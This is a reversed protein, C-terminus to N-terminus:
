VWYDLMSPHDTEPTLVNVLVKGKKAKKGKKVKKAQFAVSVPVEEKVVSQACQGDVKKEANEKAERLERDRRWLMGKSVDPEDIGVKRIPSETLQPGPSLHQVLPSSSSATREIIPSCIAVTSPFTNCGADSQDVSSGSIKCAPSSDSGGSLGTIVGEHAPLSHDVNSGVTSAILEPQSKTRAPPIETALAPTIPGAILSDALLAAEAEAPPLDPELLGFRAQVEQMSLHLVFKPRAGLGFHQRINNIELVDDVGIRRGEEKTLAEKRM